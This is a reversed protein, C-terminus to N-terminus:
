LVITNLTGAPITVNLSENGLQLVINADVDTQNGIILVISGDPNVFGLAENYSGGLVLKKAGTMVFHSLHKLEYYEPTFTWTKDEENVTILSNQFWGWRSPREYFLSTNWYYYQTVGNDFYERQLDWSYMAGEWNNKGNGCEQESEVLDIGSYNKYITPLAEKGAWQFGVGKVYKSSEPDQLLTDIKAPDPRECTGFYVDVGRKAMEPGLYQGVFINLDRSLWCCSPYPQASNPENQPMVMKIDIGEAKYADAFKGFYRAYADLYEPKMNFSTQGESGEENPKADNQQPVMRFALPGDSFFGSTASVGGEEGPKPGRKKNANDAAQKMRDIMQQTVAREAYHKTRKMWRPPCWPSAFWYIDPNASLAYKMMPILTEKDREISFDKLEFDNNTDDCSYYDLSFDNAGISMRARNFNAGKGPEYLEAFIEKLTQEPLIKLSAWGLENFCTGFGKVTQATANVDIAITQDAQTPAVPQVTQYYNDRSSQVMEKISMKSNTQCSTLVLLGSVGVSLIRSNM